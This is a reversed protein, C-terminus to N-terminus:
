GAYRWPRAANMVLRPAVGWSKMVTVTASFAGSVEVNFRAKLAEGHDL